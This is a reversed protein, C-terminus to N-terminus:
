ILSLVKGIKTFFERNKGRINIKYSPEVLNSELDTFKKNEITPYNVKLM